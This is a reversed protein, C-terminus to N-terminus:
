LLVGTNSDRKLLTVPMFAQLKTLFLSWSLHEGGIFIAFNKFADIKFFM